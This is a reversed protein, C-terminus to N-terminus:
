EPRETRSGFFSFSAGGCGWSDPPRPPNLRISCLGWTAPCALSGSDRYCAAALVKESMFVPFSLCLKNINLLNHSWRAFAVISIYLGQELRSPEYSCVCNKAGRSRDQPLFRRSGPKPDAPNCVGGPFDTRGVCPGQWFPAAALRIATSFVDLSYDKCWMKSASIHLWGARM